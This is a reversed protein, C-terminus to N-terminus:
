IYPISSSKVGIRQSSLNTKILIKTHGSSLMVIASKIRSLLHFDHWVVWLDRFYGYLKKYNIPGESVNIFIAVFASYHFIKLIWEINPNKLLHIRYVRSTLTPTRALHVALKGNRVGRTRKLVMAAHCGLHVRESIFWATTSSVSGCARYSPKIIASTAKGDGIFEIYRFSAAFDLRKCLENVVWFSYSNWCVSVIVVIMGDVFFDYVDVM